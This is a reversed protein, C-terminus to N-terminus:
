CLSCVSATSEIVLSSQGGCSTSHMSLTDKRQWRRWVFFECDDLFLEASESRLGTQTHRSYFSHSTCLSVCHKPIQKSLLTQFALLQQVECQLIFKLLIIKLLFICFNKDTKRLFHLKFEEVCIVIHASTTDIYQLIAYLFVHLKNSICHPKKETKKLEIYCQFHFLVPFASHSPNKTKTM